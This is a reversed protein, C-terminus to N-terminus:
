PIPKESKLNLIEPHIAYLKAVLDDYQNQIIFIDKKLGANAQYADKLRMKLSKNEDVLIDVLLSKKTNIDDMLNRVELDM